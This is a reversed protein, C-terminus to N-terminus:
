EKKQLGSKAIESPFGYDYRIKEPFRDIKVARKAFEEPSELVVKGDLVQIVQDIGYNKLDRVVLEESNYSDWNIITTTAGFLGVQPRTPPPLLFISIRMVWDIAWASKHDNVPHSKFYDNITVNTPFYKPLTDNIHLQNTLVRVNDRIDPCNFLSPPNYIVQYGMFSYLLVATTLVIKFPIALVNVIIFEVALLSTFAFVAIGYRYYRPDQHSTLSIGMVILVSLLFWYALHLFRDQDFKKRAMAIFLLLPSLSIFMSIVKLPNVGPWIFLFNFYKFFEAITVGRTVKVFVEGMEKTWGLTGFQWALVPFTALGTALYNKIYWLSSFFIALILIALWKRNKLLQNLLSWPKYPVFLFIVAFFLFIYVMQFKCAMLHVWFILALLLRRPDPNLRLEWISYTVGFLFAILAGNITSWQNAGSIFFHENFLVLFVGALAIYKNKFSYGVYGFILFLVIIRWFINILQAFLTEQGFLALGLAYPVSEFHPVFMRHDMGRDAVISTGYDLWLKQVTLYLAHSDVDVLLYFNRLFFIGVFVLFISNPITLIGRGRLGYFVNERVNKNILLSYSGFVLGWIWFKNYLGLLSLLLQLGVAVVSGILLTEGIYLARSANRLKDSGILLFVWQGWIYVSIVYVFFLLLQLYNM